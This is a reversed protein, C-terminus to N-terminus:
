GTCISAWREMLPRRQDLFDTKRYTHDVKSDSVHALVMEAVEHPADTVSMSRTTRTLLTAGPSVERLKIERNLLSPPVGLDEAM